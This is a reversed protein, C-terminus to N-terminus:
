GKLTATTSVLTFKDSTDWCRYGEKDIFSITEPILIDSFYDKKAKVIGKIVQTNGLYKVKQGIKFKIQM